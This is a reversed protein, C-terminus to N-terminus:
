TVSKECTSVHWTHMTAHSAPRAAVPRSGLARSSASRVKRRPSTSRFRPAVLSTGGGPKDPTHTHTSTHTHTHTHTRTHIHVNNTHTLAYKCTHNHTHAHTCTHMHAHTHSCKHMHSQTYAKCTKLELSTGTGCLTNADLNPQSLRLDVPHTHKHKHTHTHTHVHMCHTDTHTRAFTPHTYTHTHASIMANILAVPLWVSM